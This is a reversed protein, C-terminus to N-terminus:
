SFCRRVEESLVILDLKRSESKCKSMFSGVDGYGELDWCIVGSAGDAIKNFETLSLEHRIKFWVPHSWEGENDKRELLIEMEGDELPALIRYESLKNDNGSREARCFNLMSQFLLMVGRPGQPELLPGGQDYTPMQDSSGSALVQMIRSSERQLDKYDSKTRRLRSYGRGAFRDSMETTKGLYKFRRGNKVANAFERLAKIVESYILGNSTDLIGERSMTLELNQCNALVHFNQWEGSGQFVEDSVNKVIFYDKALFVGKYRKKLRKDKVVHAESGCISGVIEVGAGNRNGKIPIKVIFPDFVYAFREPPVDDVSSERPLEHGNVDIRECSGDSLERIIRTRIGRRRHHFLRACSGAATYWRLYSKLLDGSLFASRSSVNLNEILVMTGRRIEEQDHIRKLAFNPILGKELATIPGDLVGQYIQNTPSRSIVEVRDSSFFLKTGLGKNGINAGAEKTSFALGFFSKFDSRKMGEGDDSFQLDIGGKPNNSIRISIEKACADWSNSIAERLVALPNRRERIIQYFIHVDNVECKM